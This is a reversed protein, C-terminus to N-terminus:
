MDANKASKAIPATKSESGSRRIQLNLAVESISPNKPARPAKIYEELTSAAPLSESLNLRLIKSIKPHM